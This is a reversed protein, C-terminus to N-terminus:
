NQTSVSFSQKIAASIECSIIKESNNGNLHIPLSKRCAYNYRNTSQIKIANIDSSRM